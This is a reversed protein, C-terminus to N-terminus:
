GLDLTEPGVFSSKLIEIYRLIIDPCWRNDSLHLLEDHKPVTKDEETNM